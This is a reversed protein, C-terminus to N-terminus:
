AARPLVVRGITLRVGLASFIRDVTEITYGTYDNREYRAVHSQDVELLTALQEQTYGRAVRLLAIFDGLTLDYKSEPRVRGQDNWLRVLADVDRSKAVSYYSLEREMQEVHRRTTESYFEYDADDSYKQRLHVLRERMQALKNETIRMQRDNKIV